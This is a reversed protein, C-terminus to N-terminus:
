LRIWDSPIIDGSQEQLAQDKFWIRPAIVIKKKSESLWAAWWAFTSNPIIFHKCNCMLLLYSAFKEGKFEHGVFTLPYNWAVNERCWEIDDSFIFFHPNEVKEAIIEIAKEYYDMESAGHTEASNQLHVFDTRRFNVCVSNRSQILSNMEEEFFSLDSKVRFDKRIDAEIEKFYKESQWYGDLYINKSYLLNSQDFSFQEETLYKTQEEYKTPFFRKFISNRRVECFIEKENQKIVEVFLDFVTLDYERFIFNERPSRDLLFSLDVKVNTNNKIALSKAFAYQFMQNGLGGMLKVVIM